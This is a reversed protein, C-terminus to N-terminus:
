TSSIVAVIVAWSRPACIHRSVQQATVSAIASKAPFPIM